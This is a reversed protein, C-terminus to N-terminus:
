TGDKRRAGGRGRRANDIARAHEAIPTPTGDPHKLLDQVYPAIAQLAAAMSCGIDTTAQKWAAHSAPQLYAHLGRRDKDAPDINTPTRRLALELTQTRQDRRM